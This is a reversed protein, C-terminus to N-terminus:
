VTKKYREFLEHSRDYNREILRAGKVTMKIWFTTKVEGFFIVSKGIGSEEASKKKRVKGFIKM